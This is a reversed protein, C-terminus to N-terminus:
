FKVSKLICFGKDKNVVECNGYVDVLKKKASDAGQKKRIVVWLEGNDVLHEKAKELIEFVVSKGARIPPNSVVADYVGDAKEYVDSEFVRCKDLENDFINKECLSVARKNIELMDVECNNFKSIMIGIVGIGSGVDLVRGKRGYAVYTEVLLKSGADVGDKSFVGNDSAFRFYKDKFYIDISKVCSKVSEDNEFYHSM